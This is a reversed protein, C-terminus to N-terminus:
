SHALRALTTNGQGVSSCSSCTRNGDMTVVSTLFRDWETIAKRDEFLRHSSALIKSVIKSRQLKNHAYHLALNIYDKTDKAVCDMIGMKEYMALTLRGSLYEGPLTIVPAGVAFAHLSNIYGGAPFTDLVVDALIYLSLMEEEGSATYFLVRDIQEEQESL